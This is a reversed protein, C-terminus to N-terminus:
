ATRGTDPSPRYKRTFEAREHEENRRARELADLLSDALGTGIVERYDTESDRFRQEVRTILQRIRQLAGEVDARSIGPIPEPHYHLATALDDHALIRNRLDRIPRCYEVLDYHSARLSALLASDVHPELLDILQALSANDHQGLHSPDTLRAIRLLVDHRMIGELLGFFSGAAWNLLAIREPSTGYLARYNQWNLHLHTVDEALEHYLAGVTPPFATLREAKVEDASLSRAM